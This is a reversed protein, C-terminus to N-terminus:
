IISETEIVGIMLKMVYLNKYYKIFKLQAFYNCKKILVNNEKNTVFIDNDDNRISLFQLM